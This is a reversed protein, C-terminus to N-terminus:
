KEDDIIDSEKFLNDYENKLKEKEIEIKEIEIIMIDFIKILSEIPFDNGNMGALSYEVCKKRIDELRRYNTKLWLNKIKDYVIPLSM